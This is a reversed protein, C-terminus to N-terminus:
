ERKKHFTNIIGVDSALAFALTSIGMNNRVGFDQGRYVSVYGVRDKGVHGNELELALKIRM